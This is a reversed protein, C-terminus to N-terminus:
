SAREALRKAEALTDVNAVWRGSVIVAWRKSGKAPGVGAGNDFVQASGRQYGDEIREWGVGMDTRVAGMGTWEEESVGEADWEFVPEQAGMGTEEKHGSM